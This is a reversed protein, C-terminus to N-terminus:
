KSSRLTKRMKKPRSLDELELKEDSIIEGTGKSKELRDFTDPLLTIANNYQKLYVSCKQSLKQVDYVRLFRDLGTSFLLPLEPHRCLSRISGHSGKLNGM